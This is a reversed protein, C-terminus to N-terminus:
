IPREPWTFRSGGAANGPLCIGCRSLSSCLGCSTMQAPLLREGKLIKRIIPQIHALCSSRSVFLAAAYLSLEAVGGCGSGLVSLTAAGQGVGGGGGLIVTRGDQRSHDGATSCPKSGSPPTHCIMQQWQYLVPAQM